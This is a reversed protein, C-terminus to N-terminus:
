EIDFYKINQNEVDLFVFLVFVKTKKTNKSTGYLFYKQLGQLYL